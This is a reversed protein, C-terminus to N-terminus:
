EVNLKGAERLIIMDTSYAIFVYGEEILGNLKKIDPDVLHFGHPINYKQAAKKIKELAESFEKGEFYGPTGLSASLDYPGVIYADAMDSNFIEDINKVADIHEIQPILLCDKEFIDVYNDFNLGWNHARALGVGRTGLPPYHMAKYARSLSEQDKVMPVVIGKAGSDMVRKIDDEKNSTIRVIPLSGAFEISRIMDECTEFSIPTHEMDVCVWDFSDSSSMLEASAANPIQLWTGITPKGISLKAKIEKLKQHMNNRIESPM